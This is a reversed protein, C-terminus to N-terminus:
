DVESTDSALQSLSALHEEISLLTDLIAMQLIVQGHEEWNGGFFSVVALRDREFPLAYKRNGRKFMELIRARVEPPTRASTRPPQSAGPEADGRTAAFFREQLLRDYEVRAERSLRERDVKNDLAYAAEQESTMEPL